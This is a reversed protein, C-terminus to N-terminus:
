SVGQQQSRRLDYQRRAKLFWGPTKTTYRWIRPALKDLGIIQGADNIALAQAYLSGEVVGLLRMGTRRTWSMPQWSEALDLSGGVIERLNNIGNGLSYQAGGIVGLDRPHIMNPSWLYAHYTFGHDSVLFNGTVQDLDNIAYATNGNDANSSFGTFVTFGAPRGFSGVQKGDVHHSCGVNSVSNIATAWCTATRSDGGGPIGLDVMGTAETWIFATILIRRSTFRVRHRDSIATAWCDGGLTTASVVIADWIFAHLM